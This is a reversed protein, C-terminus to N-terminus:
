YIIGFLRFQMLIMMTDELTCEGQEEIVLKLKKEM